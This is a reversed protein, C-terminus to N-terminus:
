KPRMNPRMTARAAREAGACVPYTASTSRGSRLGCSRTRRRWLPKASNAPSWMKMGRTRCTPRRRARCRRRVPCPPPSPEVGPRPAAATTTPVRNAPTTQTRKAAAAPRSERIRPADQASHTQQPHRRRFRRPRTGARRGRWRRGRWGAVAPDTGLVGDSAVEDGDTGDEDGASAESEDGASRDAEDGQRSADGAVGPLETSTEWDDEGPQGGAQEAGEQAAAGDAPENAQATQRADQGAEGQGATSQRESPNSGESQDGRSKRADSASSAESQEGRSQQARADDGNTSSRSASPPAPRAPSPLSPMGSPSPLSPSPLSPSPLSPSPLSPSSPSPLSSSSSPSSPSPPSPLSPSQSSPSPLSPLSPMGGASPSPPPPLPPSIPKDCGALAAIALLCASIVAVAPSRRLDQNRPVSASMSLEKGVLRVGGGIAAEQAAYFAQEEPIAAQQESLLHVHTKRPRRKDVTSIRWRLYPRYRARKVARRVKFDMMDAPESRLTDINSVFGHENVDVSLEVIGKRADQEAARDPKEPDRPLPMYLPTPANFTRALLDPKDQLLEWVRRYLSVARAYKEFMLFWDGLELM